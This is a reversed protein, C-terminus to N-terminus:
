SIILSLMWSVVLEHALLSLTTQWVPWNKAALRSSIRGHLWWGSERSLEVIRKTWKIRKWITCMSTVTEANPSLHPFGQHALHEVTAARYAVLRENLSLECEDRRIWVQFSSIITNSIFETVHLYGQWPGDDSRGSQAHIEVTQLIEPEQLDLDEQIKYIGVMGHWVNNGWNKLDSRTSISWGLRFNRKDSLKKKKPMTMFFHGALVLKRLMWVLFSLWNIAAREAVWVINHLALLLGVM